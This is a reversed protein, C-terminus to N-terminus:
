TIWTKAKLDINMKHYELTEWLEKIEKDKETLKELKEIFEKM